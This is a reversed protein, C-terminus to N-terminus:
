DLLEVKNLLDKTRNDLIKEFFRDKFLSLFLQDLWKGNLAIKGNNMYTISASKPSRNSYKTTLMEFVKGDIYYDDSGNKKTENDFQKILDMVRSVMEKIDQNTKNELHQNLKNTKM